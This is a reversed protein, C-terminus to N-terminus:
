RHGQEAMYVDACPGITETNQTIGATQPVRESQLM